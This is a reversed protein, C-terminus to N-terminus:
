SADSSIKRLVDDADDAASLRPALLMRIHQESNLRAAQPPLLM